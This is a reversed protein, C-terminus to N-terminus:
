FHMPAERLILDIEDDWTGGVLIDGNGCCEYQKMVEDKANQAASKNSYIGVIKLDKKRWTQSRAGRGNHSVWVLCWAKSPKTPKAIKAKKKSSSIASIQRKNNNNLYMLAPNLTSTSSTTTGTATEHHHIHHPTINASSTKTSVKKTVIRQSLTDPSYVLGSPMLLDDDDSFSM